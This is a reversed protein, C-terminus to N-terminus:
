LLLKRTVTWSSTGCHMDKVQLVKQIFPASQRWIAKIGKVLLKHKAAGEISRGAYSRAHRLAAGSEIM